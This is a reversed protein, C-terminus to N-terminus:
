RKTFSLTVWKCALSKCSFVKTVKGTSSCLKSSHALSILHYTSLFLNYQSIMKEGGVNICYALAIPAPALVGCALHGLHQQSIIIVLTLILM